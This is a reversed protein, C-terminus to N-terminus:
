PQAQDFAAASDQVLTCSGPSGTRSYRARACWSLFGASGLASVPVRVKVSVQLDNKITTFAALGAVGPRAGLELIPCECEASGRTGSLLDPMGVNNQPVGAAELLLLLSLVELRTTQRYQISRCPLVYCAAIQYTQKECVIKREYSAPARNLNKDLGSIARVADAGGTQTPPAVVRM